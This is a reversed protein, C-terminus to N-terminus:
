VEAEVSSDFQAHLSCPALSLFLSYAYTFFSHFCRHHYMSRGAIGVCVYRRRVVGTIGVCVDDCTKM